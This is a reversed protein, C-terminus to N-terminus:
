KELYDENNPKYQKCVKKERTRRLIRERDSLSTWVASPVNPSVDRPVVLSESTTVERVGESTVNVIFSPRTQPTSM